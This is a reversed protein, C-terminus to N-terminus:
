QLDNSGLEYHCNIPKVDASHVSSRQSENSYLHSSKLRNAVWSNRESIDGGHTNEECM